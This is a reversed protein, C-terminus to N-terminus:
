PTDQGLGGRRLGTVDIQSDTLRAITAWDLQLGFGPESSGHLRGDRLLPLGAVFQDQGFGGGGPLTCEVYEPAASGPPILQWHWEPWYHPIVAVGVRRAGHCAATFLTPGGLMTADPRLYTLGQVGLTAAIELPTSLVEGLALAISAVRLNPHRDLEYPYPDEILAVGADALQPLMSEVQAPTWAGNVDLAVQVHAGLVAIVRRLRALDDAPDAFGGMLKVMSAGLAAAHEAEAVDDAAAGRGTQTYGIAVVVPLEPPRDHGALQWVPVRQARAAADLRALEVLSVARSIPGSWGANRLAVLLGAGDLSPDAAILPLILERLVTQVPLGRTMVYAEGTSGDAADLKLCCYQRTDIILNGSQIPQALSINVTATRTEVVAVRDVITM